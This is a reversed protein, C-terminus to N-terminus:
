EDGSLKKAIRFVEIFGATIGMLTLILMLWPETGLKGDLWSGLAYGILTAVVLVIGISSAQGASRLAKRRNERM